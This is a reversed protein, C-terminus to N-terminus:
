RKAPEPHLETYDPPIQFIAPDSRVYQVQEAQALVGSAVRARLLVGDETMCLQTDQGAVDHTHWETCPLGAVQDTGARQWTGGAVGLTALPSAGPLELVAHDPPRVLSMRGARYDVVMFMGELPPDVRLLQNTVDWRMRQHLGGGMVYTVDVDRSPTTAPTDAWAPASVLLAALLIRKM